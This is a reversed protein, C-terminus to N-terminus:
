RPGGTSSEAPLTGPDAASGPQWSQPRVRARQYSPRDVRPHVVLDPWTEGDASTVRLRILEPFAQRGEWRALWRPADRPDDRGFYSFDVQSLHAALVTEQDEGGELAGESDEKLDPHVLRRSLILRRREAAGAVRFVMRYLGGQGLHAPVETVFSLEEGTGAFHLRWRGRERTMLPHASALHRRVFDHALRMDASAGARQEGSAWARAGLRLGSYLVVAMLAFVTMAVLLELLTFGGQGGV